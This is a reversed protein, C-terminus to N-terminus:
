TNRDGHFRIVTSVMALNAKAAIDRNNHSCYKQDIELPSKRTDQIKMKSSVNLSDILSISDIYSTTAFIQQAESLSRTLLHQSIRAREQCLAVGIGPAEQGWTQHIKISRERLQDTSQNAFESDAESGRSQRFINENSKVPPCRSAISFFWALSQSRFTEFESGEETEQRQRQSSSRAISQETQLGVRRRRM